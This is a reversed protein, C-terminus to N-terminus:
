APRGFLVIAVAAALVAVILSLMAARVGRFSDIMIEVRVALVAIKAEAADLRGGQAEQRSQQSEQQSRLLEFERDTVAM